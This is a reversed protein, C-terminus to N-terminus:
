SGAKPDPNTEFSAVKPQVHQGDQLASLRGVIVTDGENLGTVVEARLPTQIGTKISAQHIVGSSDVVFVHAADGNGQIADIPVNLVNAHARTDLVVDAYMGPVLVLDPNSVDVETIMTRTSMDLSKSFRIVRGAITKGLTRVNIRVSAGDHIFPVASEPVPLILRLLSNQSLRVVPMAQTQSATGAQIMSGVNAYRKTVVADFPATIRAYKYLTETRAQAALAMDKHQQSAQLKSQAAGLRAEAELDRSHIVDVEQAPVLGPEKTNVDNIRTYSLHALEHAANAQRLEQQATMIDADAAQVEAIARTRDNDMEPIELTALLQGERVRDGIDVPISKLYGSVKAMIDVEQYPQFEGTLVISEALDARVVKVVPVVTLEDVSAASTPSRGILSSNGCAVVFSALLLTAALPAVNRRFIARRHGNTM